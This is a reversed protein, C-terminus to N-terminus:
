PSSPSAAASGRRLEPHSLTSRRPGPHTFTVFSLRQKLLNVQMNYPAVVLIDGLTLATTSTASRQVRHILLNEILGAIAEVEQLSSQTCGEHKVDLFTIGAPQLARHAAPALVLKRAAADRHATLRGDYIAESIFNCLAPHLRRSETLLIGRDM